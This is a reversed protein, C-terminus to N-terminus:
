SKSARELLDSVGLRMAWYTMYKYDLAPGSVALVGLIDRWQQESVENGKKFWVLKSIVTDEATAVPV